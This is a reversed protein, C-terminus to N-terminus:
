EVQKVDAMPGTDTELPDGLQAFVTDLLDTISDQQSEQEVPEPVEVRKQALESCVHCGM